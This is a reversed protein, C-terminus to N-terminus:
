FEFLSQTKVVARNEPFTHFAHILLSRPAPHAQICSLPAPMFRNGAPFQHAVDATRCDASLEQHFKLFVEQDLHELQYSVYYSLGGDFTVTQHHSGKLASRLFRKRQPLAQERTTTIETITRDGYRFSV